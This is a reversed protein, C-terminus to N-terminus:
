SDEIFEEAVWVIFEGFGHKEGYNLFTAVGCSYDSIGSTPDMDVYNVIWCDSSQTCRLPMELKFDENSLAANAFLCLLGGLAPASFAKLSARIVIKEMEKVEDFQNM